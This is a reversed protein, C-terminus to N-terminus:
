LWDPDPREKLWQVFDMAPPTGGLLRLRTACQARHGHSHMCVQMAAQAVSFQHGAIFPTEVTRALDPERLQSVWELEQAHTERYRAAIAKLSEPVRSEEDRSFPRAVSLSFWFRNALIIHHLLKRLEQDQAAPEHGRIAKLLAANAYGKHRVLDHLLDLMTVM